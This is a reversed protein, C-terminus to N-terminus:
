RIQLNKTETRKANLLSEDIEALNSQFTEKQSM